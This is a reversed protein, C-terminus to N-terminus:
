PSQSSPESTLLVQYEQLPSPTPELFWEYSQNHPGTQCGRIVEKPVLAYVCMYVHLCFLINKFSNISKVGGGVIYHGNWLAGHNTDTQGVQQEQASYLLILYCVLLCLPLQRKIFSTVPHYLHLKGEGLHEPGSTTKIKSYEYICLSTDQPSLAWTQTYKPKM